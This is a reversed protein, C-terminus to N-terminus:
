RANFPCSGSSGFAPVGDWVIYDSALYAFGSYAQEKGRGVGKMLNPGKGSGNKSYLGGM